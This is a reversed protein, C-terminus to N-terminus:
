VTPGSVLTYRAQRDEITRSLFPRLSRLARDVTSRSFNDMEQAMALIETRSVGPTYEIITVLWDQCAAVQTDDVPINFQVHRQARALMDKEDYHFRQCGEKFSLYAPEDEYELWRRADELIVSEAMLSAEQEKRRRYAWYSDPLVMNEREIYTELAYSLLHEFFDSRPLNTRQWATNLSNSLESDIHLWFQLRRNKNTAM